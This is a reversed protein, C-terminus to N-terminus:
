GAAEFVSSTQDRSKLQLPTQTFSVADATVRSLEHIGGIMSLATDLGMSTPKVILPLEVMASGFNRLTEPVTIPIDEEDQSAVM